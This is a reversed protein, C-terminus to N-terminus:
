QAKQNNKQKISPDSIRGTLMIAFIILTLVAGVYILIQVMALFDAHLSIFLGATGLLVGALFLAAHFLNRLTVVGIAAIVSLAMIGYVVGVGLYSLGTDM